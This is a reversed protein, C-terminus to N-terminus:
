VLTQELLEARKEVDEFGKEQERVEILAMELEFTVEDYEPGDCDMEDLVVEDNRLRCKELVGALEEDEALLRSEFLMDVLGDMGSQLEEYALHKTEEMQRTMAVRGSVVGQVYAKEKRRVAENDTFLDIKALRTDLGEELVAIRHAICNPCWRPHVVVGVEEYGLDVPFDHLLETGDLDATHLCGWHVIKNFRPVDFSQDMVSQLSMTMSVMM